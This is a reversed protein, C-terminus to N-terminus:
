PHTPAGEFLLVTAGLALSGVIEWPGMIWGLDTAWHLVEGPHLDVQYAVEEAIKVLFGGHVHVVGKPRGTTGSTYGIFLPHEAELAEAPMPEDDDALADWWRDRADNWPTAPDDLHRLVVIHEVCGAAEVARDATAKMPVIQGKRLSGDATILVKTRADALRAAVADPGFGSFIPVWIAGIKSCAMIAAVGEPIMPLFIGVTDRAEVGLSRLGRALRDTRDRLEAYTWIRVSGDEGEGMVAPADPTRSAWRDVCQHALNLTGGTFWTTWEVGSRSDLVESYPEFFEIDLDNVVADWFWGIDEVSRRVVEDYTEIGHARMFRTINAREVYGPSPSWVVDNM